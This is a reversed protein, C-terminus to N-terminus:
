LGLRKRCEDLIVVTASAGVRTVGLARVELLADLTRVGGAAKVQVHAPSHQRMLELDEHTAGGTGYGTSTKVWDAGLEGCLECLRIKHEDQLYCNEFIVKVKQGGDHTVDIVAKLDARVYDWDGSLVQSINVVMDLEQGGDTLARRAETVKAATTHGGHPFGITTSANVTSGSLLEACRKLRYPMICVSAVNYDLAVQCGQDLDDTTMSPRLLSHDIMKAIDEYEYHNTM